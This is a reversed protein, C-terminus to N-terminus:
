PVRARAARAHRRNADRRRPALTNATVILSSVSANAAKARAHPAAHVAGDGGAPPRQSESVRRSCGLPISSSLTTHHDYPYLGTAM